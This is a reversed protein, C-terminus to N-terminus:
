CYILKGVVNGVVNKIEGLYMDKLNSKLIAKEKILGLKVLMKLFIFARIKPSGDAIKVVLANGDHAAIIIGDAGVKAILKGESLNMLESDIQGKGGVLYPFSTMAEIIKTYAGRHPSEKTFNSFLKAINTIPLSFVPLGCGDVAIQINKYESLEQISKLIQMQLPHKLSLYNDFNYKNKKCVCLMGLHKGSCNNHLVNPKLNKRILKIKEEEDFPM